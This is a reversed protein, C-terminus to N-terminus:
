GKRRRLVGVAGIALLALTGPEPVYNTLVIQSEDFPSGTGYFVDFSGGNDLALTGGSAVNAFAGSLTDADAIIFTDTFEPSFGNFLSVVLDGDLTLTNDVIDLFDYDDGQLTGGIEIDFISTATLTLDADIELSGANDSGVGPAITGNNTLTGTVVSGDGEITGDNTMAIDFSVSSATDATITGANAFNNFDINLTGGNTAMFVGTNTTSADDLELVRGAVNASV